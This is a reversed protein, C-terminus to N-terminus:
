QIIINLFFLSLFFILSVPSPYFLLLNNEEIAMTVTTQGM